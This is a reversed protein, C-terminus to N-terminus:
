RSLVAVVSGPGSGYLRAGGCSARSFPNGLYVRGSKWGNKLIRGLAAPSQENAACLNISFFIWECPM